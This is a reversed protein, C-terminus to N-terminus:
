WTRNELFKILVHVTINTKFNNMVKKKHQFITRELFQLKFIFSMDLINNKKQVYEEWLEIM